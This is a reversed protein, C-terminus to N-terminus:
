MGLRMGINDDVKDKMQRGGKNDISRSKEM